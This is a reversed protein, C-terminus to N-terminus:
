ASAVIDTLADKLDSYRFTFGAEELRKPVARQGGLLLDAGEGLMIKVARAPVRMMAPRFLVEGLLAAFQENHVPYPATMNFPGRLNDTTLLYLLANVMDDVHIWPLFQRGDGIPGGLGLKYLPLVKQLMGGDAAMVIGTRSLCVRTHDSAAALALDEWRQCLQHAFDDVPTEDETVLHQGQDGYYGTASGSIFVAPPRNSQRILRSLQETINWRSQCLLEKHEPTWRRDAIPEGALNIVADIGDLAACSSLSSLTTITGGLKQHARQPDRTLVTIEHSLALLRAILHRGILGTGGTVLIKM